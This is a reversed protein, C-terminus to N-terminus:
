LIFASIKMLEDRYGRKDTDLLTRGQLSQDFEPLNQTRIDQWCIHNGPNKWRNFVDAFAPHGVGPPKGPDPGQRFGM